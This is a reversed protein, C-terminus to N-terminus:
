VRMEKSSHDRDRPMVKMTANRSRASIMSSHYPSGGYKARYADDILDNIPGEVPMFAVDRTTGAASIRGARQRLAARYWRSKPGLYARVYLAGDVAVSWIWTPTGHTIGDERFPAVHLDDGETIGRLEDKEVGNEHSWPKM